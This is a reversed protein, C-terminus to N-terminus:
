LHTRDADGGNGYTSIVEMRTLEQTLQPKPEITANVHRPGKRDVTHQVHSPAPNPPTEPHCPCSPQRQPHGPSDSPPQSSPTSAWAGLTSARTTMSVRVGTWKGCATCRIWRGFCSAALTAQHRATTNWAQPQIM